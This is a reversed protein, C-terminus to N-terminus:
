AELGMPPRREARRLDKVAKAVDEDSFGRDVELYRSALIVATAPHLGRGVRRLAERVDSLAVFRLRTLHEDGLVGYKSQSPHATM